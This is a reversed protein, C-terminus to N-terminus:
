LLIAGDLIVTVDTDSSWSFGMNPIIFPPYGVFDRPTPWGPPDDPPTDGGSFVDPVCWTGPTESSSQGVVPIASSCCSSTAALSCSQYMLALFASEALYSVRCEGPSDGAARVCLHVIEHLLLGAMNVIGCAQAAADGYCALYSNVSFRSGPLSCLSIRRTLAWASGNTIGIMDGDDDYKIDCIDDDIKIEIDANEGTLYNRICTGAEPNGTAMCIAWEALDVNDKLLGFAKGLLDLECKDPTESNNKIEWNDTYLDVGSCDAPGNVPPMGCVDSDGTNDCPGGDYAAGPTDGDDLNDQCGLRELEADIDDVAKTDGAILAALRDQTLQACLDGSNADGPSDSGSGKSLAGDRSRWRRGGSVTVLGTDYRAPVTPLGQLPGFGVPTTGDWLAGPSALM